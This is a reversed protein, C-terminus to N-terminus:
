CGVDLVSPNEIGRRRAEAQVLQANVLWVDTHRDRWDEYKGTGRIQESYYNQEYYKELGAASLRPCTRWLGCQDCGIIKLEGYDYRVDGGAASCLPCLPEPDTGKAPFLM